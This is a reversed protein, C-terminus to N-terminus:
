YFSDAPIGGRGFDLPAASGMGPGLQPAGTNAFGEGGLLPGNHCSACRATGFFLLAGRKETATLAADERALYRDFPSNTKTFEQLEFAAIAAAAHQFGLQNDPTGPFAAHFLTDYEPIALLRQMVGHWIASLQSDGYQALENPRGLSDVDGSDGRMEQRNLVPFMAQAALINPLGAPLASGAPTEFPGSRFGAVRGDAFVYVLGLGDNLLSPASRAHFQRGPGLTRTPGEGVGGTGIALSLGDDLHQQPLHCTACAVDKNGSLIKDFFLARGLAVQAADQVPMPAIPVVGYTQSIAQRLEADISEPPTITRNTDACACAGLLLIAVAFRASRLTM